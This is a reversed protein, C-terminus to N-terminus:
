FHAHRYAVNGDYINTFHIVKIKFRKSYLATYLGVICKIVGVGSLRGLPANTGILEM